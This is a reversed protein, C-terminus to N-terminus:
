QGKREARVRRLTLEVLDQLYKKDTEDLDDRARLLVAVETAIDARPVPPDEGCPTVMFTEAKEGLWQVLAVFGDLDPRQKNGMRSLLSPSVNAQQAVQRWLLGRERRKADLADYLKAVDVRGDM